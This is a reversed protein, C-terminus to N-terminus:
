AAGEKRERELARSSLKDIIAREVLARVKMGSKDAAKKLRVHLDEPIQVTVM